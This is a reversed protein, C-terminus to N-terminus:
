GKSGAFGTIQDSGSGGHSECSGPGSWRDNSNSRFGRVARENRLQLRLGYSELDAKIDRVPRKLVYNLVNLDLHTFEGSENDEVFSDLSQFEPMRGLKRVQETEM